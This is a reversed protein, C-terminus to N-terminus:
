RLGHSLDAQAWSQLFAANLPSFACSFEANHEGAAVFYDWPLVSVSPIKSAAPVCLCVFVLPVSFGGLVRSSLLKEYWRCFFFCSNVTEDMQLFHKQLAYIAKWNILVHAAHFPIGGISFPWGAGCLSAALSEGPLLKIGPLLTQTQSAHGFSGRHVGPLVFLTLHM